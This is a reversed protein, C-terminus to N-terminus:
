HQNYFSQDSGTPSLSTSSSLTLVQFIYKSGMRSTNAPGTSQVSFIVPVSSFGVAFSWVELQLQVSESFKRNGTWLNSLFDFFSWLFSIQVPQLWDKVTIYVLVYTYVLLFICCLSITVISFYMYKRPPMCAQPFFVTM